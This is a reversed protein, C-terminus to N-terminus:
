NEDSDEKRYKEKLCKKHAYTGTVYGELDVNENLIDTSTIKKSCFECIFM